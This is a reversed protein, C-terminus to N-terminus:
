DLYAPLKPLAMNDKPEHQIILRAHERRIIRELKESSALTAAHDFNFSPVQHKARNEPFHWQDGSLVVTGAHPLKLQLAMHGPTHGPLAIAKVLGDGFFDHDGDILRLAHEGREPAHASLLEPTIFHAEANKRDALVAYEKRQLVLTADPFDNSQGSHDFHAHSLAVYRIDERKLGLRALQDAITDKLDMKLQGQTVGAQFSKDFGTDWLMWTDGHKILYCSIVIDYSRGKYEGSDSMLTMDGIHMTGCDLRYLRMDPSTPAAGASWAFLSFFVASFLHKM